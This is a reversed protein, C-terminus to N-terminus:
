PYPPVPSGSIDPEFQTAFPTATPVIEKLSNVFRHAPVDFYYIENTELSRLILRFDVADIIQIEGSKSPALYQEMHFPNDVIVLVLGQEPDTALVGAFVLIYNGNVFEQWANTIKFETSSFPVSPYQIIGTIRQDKPQYTPPIFTGNQPESTLELIGSMQQTAESKLIALKTEISARIEQNLQGQLEQELIDIERLRMNTIDTPISTFPIVVSRWKAGIASTYSLIAIALMLLFILCIYLLNKNLKHM